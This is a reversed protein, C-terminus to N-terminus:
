WPESFIITPYYVLDFKTIRFPPLFIENEIECNPIWKLFMEVITNFGKWVYSLPSHAQVAHILAYYKIM